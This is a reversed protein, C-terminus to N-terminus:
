NDYNGGTEPDDYPGSPNDIWYQMRAETAERGKKQIHQWGFTTYVMGYWYNGSNPRDNKRPGMYSGAPTAFGATASCYRGFPIAELPM